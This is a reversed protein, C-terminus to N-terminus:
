RYHLIGGAFLQMMPLVESVPKRDTSILEAPANALMDVLRMVAPGDEGVIYEPFYQKTGM